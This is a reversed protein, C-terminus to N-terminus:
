QRDEHLMIIELDMWIAAFVMIENRKIASYYEMTYYTCRIRRKKPPPTKKPGGRLAYPPEWTLPQILATAVPWCWLWLLALALSYKCGIGCSM